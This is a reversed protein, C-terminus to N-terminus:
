SSGLNNIANILLEPLRDLTTLKLNDGGLIQNFLGQRKEDAYGHAAGLYRVGLDALPETVAQLESTSEFFCFDTLLFLTQNDATPHNEFQEIAWRLAADVCYAAHRCLATKGSGVPGILGM